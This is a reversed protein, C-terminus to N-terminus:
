LILLILMEQFPGSRWSLIFIFLFFHDVPDGGVDFHDDEVPSDPVCGTEDCSEDDSM